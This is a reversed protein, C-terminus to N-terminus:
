LGVSAAANQRFLSGDRIYRRLVTVSKHGTQNQIVREEVGNMAAQTALGARLSHGAYLKPNLGAATALKKVILAVARDTLPTTQVQGWRTVGRLVPGATLRSAELWKRVAHVPCTHESVGFPIGKKAGQGEQDTKSRRMSVVLGSSTFSLDDVELAVLESRRFAGAFGLLILAKDRLGVLDEDCTAVMAKIDETLLAAKGVQAVGHARRAGALVNQVLATRTPSEFGATRHAQSIASMRRQLTSAKEAGALEAAFMAVTDPQAPLAAFGRMECWAMFRRWDTRYARLTNAAKSNLAYGKAKEQLEVLDLQGAGPEIQMLDM